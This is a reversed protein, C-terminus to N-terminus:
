RTEEVTGGGVVEDENYCVAAQGPAVGRVPEDLDLVLDGGELRAVAGVPEQRYRVQVGVRMEATGRWVVSSCRVHCVDLEASTGVTVTNTAADIAVVYLPDPAAVGLGRRQGVTYGAIGNHTGIRRGATDVIPGPAVACPRSAGVYARVDDAPVFCVEQSEPTAATPLGREAALERVRTKTLEGVPFLTRSLQEATTRYLFYSQDKAPDLGRALWLSGDAHRAIRAYHGTALYDAGQQAARRWLEAFKVRDNCEICPNPTRGTAYADSFPEIVDRRFEERVNLTYHPIGLADCVRRADRVASTSCCGGEFDGSPLLQMTVGVVDHGAEVLLAAAVSSDVGGSMAAFVRAM